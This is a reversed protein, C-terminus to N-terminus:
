HEYIEYFAGRNFQQKHAYNIASRTPTPRSRGANFTYKEPLDLGAGVVNAICQMRNITEPRVCPGGRCCKFNIVCVCLM